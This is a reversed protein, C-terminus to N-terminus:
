GGKVKNYSHFSISTYKTLHIYKHINCLESLPLSLNLFPYLKYKKSNNIYYNAYLEYESFCSPENNDVLEIIAEYWNKGSKVSIEEKMKQLIEKNFLMGHSVFSVGNLKLRPILKRIAKFYPLHYEDSQFFM